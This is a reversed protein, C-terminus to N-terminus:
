ITGSSLDIEYYRQLAKQLSDKETGRDDVAFFDNACFSHPLSFPKAELLIRYNRQAAPSRINFYHCIDRKLTAKGQIYMLWPVLFSAMNLDNVGRFRNNLFNEISPGYKEWALFYVSKKLPIYTHVLPRDIQDNLETGKLLQASRLSASLTPTILGNLEMARLSKKSLFLSALGNSSFFHEPSLAQAVFVDDNFYIFNECLGPILHLYAEIVHSNFTPLYNRPIIEEHDIVRLKENPVLWSPCQKDTVVYICNVWPMFKQVSYLSYRLEDHNSFRARDTAYRGTEVGNLSQTAKQKKELWVPDDDNVWTFVVDIKLTNKILKEFEIDHRVLIGEDNKPCGIENVVLPYRSDFYDRFFVGPSRLLKRIKKINKM